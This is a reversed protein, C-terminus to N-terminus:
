KTRREHQKRRYRVAATTVGLQEAIQEDSKSWDLYLWRHMAKTHVKKGRQKAQWRVTAHNANMMEALTEIPATWDVVDWNRWEQRVRRPSGAQCGYCWKDEAVAQAQKCKLCVRSRYRRIVNKYSRGFPLAEIQADTYYLYQRM